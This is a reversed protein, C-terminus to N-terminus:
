TALGPSGLWTSVFIVTVAPLGSWALASPIIQMTANDWGHPSVAEIITCATAALLIAPAGDIGIEPSLGALWLALACMVFVAASGELSRTAPVSSLSWVRYNHRGLMTGAPEGIADGLGTVLYGVLAFRGFLISSALGGALTTFYPLLVFYTRHPEDKERALAEYFLNGPGKWVAFFVVLTCMASFICVAPTGRTWQLAAVTGFIIFHFVKRTYGTRMGHRKLTGAFWLAALSWLLGPPGEVALARGSPFNEVFFAALRDSLWNM